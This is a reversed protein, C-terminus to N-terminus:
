KQSVAHGGGKGVEGKGEAGEVRGRCISFCVSASCPSLRCCQAVSAATAQLDNNLSSMDLWASSCFALLFLLRLVVAGGDSSEASSLSGYTSPPLYGSLIELSSVSPKPDAPPPMALSLEALAPATTVGVLFSWFNSPSVPYTLVATAEMLLLLSPWCLM